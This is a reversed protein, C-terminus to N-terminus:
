KKALFDKFLEVEKACGPSEGAYWDWVLGLAESWRAEEESPLTYFVCGEDIAWKELQEEYAPWYETSVWKAWKHTTDKFAKQLDPPLSDFIDK